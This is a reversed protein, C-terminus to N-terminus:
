MPYNGSYTYTPKLENSIELQCNTVDARANGGLTLSAEAFVYPLENTITVATPSTLFAQLDGPHVFPQSAGASGVFGDVGLNKFFPSASGFSNVSGLINNFGIGGAYGNLTISSFDVNVSLGRVVEPQLVFGISRSVSTAPKLQPNNGDEGHRNPIVQRGVLVRVISLNIPM